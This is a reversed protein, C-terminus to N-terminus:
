DVLKKFRALSDTSRMRVRPFIMPDQGVKVRADVTTFACIFGADTLAQRATANNHGFPYAFVNVTKGTLQEILMQTTQLDAVIEDHSMSLMVGKSNSSVKHMYNSHSQMDICDNNAYEQWTDKYTIVFETMTLGYKELVPVAIRFFSATADDDTLIVSHRPLDIEGKSYAVLEEFSPFYFNNEALYKIESDFLSRAMQNVPLYTPQTEGALDDYFWHYMLVPIGKTNKPQVNITSTLTATNGSSDCVRYILTYLGETNTDVTGEVQIRDTLDGDFSDTATALDHFQEGLIVYSNIRRNLEIEPAVTDAVTVTQKFTTSNGSTDTVRYELDYRGLTRTDVAGTIEIKATLDGDVNDTASVNASFSEGAEIQIYQGGEVTLVPAETDRM